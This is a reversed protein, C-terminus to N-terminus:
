RMTTLGMESSDSMEYITEGLDFNLRYMYRHLTSTYIQLTINIIISGIFEFFITPSAFFFLYYFGYYFQITYLWEIVNRLNNVKEFLFSGVKKEEENDAPYLYEFEQM